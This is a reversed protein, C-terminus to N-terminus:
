DLSGEVKSNYRPGEAKVDRLTTRPSYANVMRSLQLETREHTRM